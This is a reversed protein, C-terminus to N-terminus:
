VMLLAQATVSIVGRRHCLERRDTVAPMATERKELSYPVRSGPSVIWGVSVIAYARAPIKQCKFHTPTPHRTGV